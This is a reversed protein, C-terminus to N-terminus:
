QNDKSKTCENKKEKEEIYYNGFKNIYAVIQYFKEDGYDLRGCMFNRLGGYSINLDLAIDKMKNEKSAYRWTKIAERLRQEQEDNITRINYM